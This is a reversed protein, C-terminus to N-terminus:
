GWGATCSVLFPLLQLHRNGPLRVQQVRKRLCPRYASGGCTGTRMGSGAASSCQRHPPMSATTWPLFLPPM